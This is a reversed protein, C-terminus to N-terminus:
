NRWHYFTAIWGKEDSVALVILADDNYSYSVYQVKGYGPDEKVETERLLLGQSTYEQVQWRLISTGSPLTAVIIIYTNQKTVDVRKVWSTINKQFEGLKKWHEPTNQKRVNEFDFSKISDIYRSNNTINKLDFATNKTFNYVRPILEYSGIIENNHNIAVHSSLNHTWLQKHWFENPISAIYHEKKGNLDFIGLSPTNLRTEPSSFQIFKPNGIVSFLLQKRYPLYLFSNSEAKCFFKQKNTDNFPNAYNEYRIFYLNKKQLNYTAVAPIYNIRKRLSDYELYHLTSNLLLISDEIFAANSFKNQLNKKQYEIPITEGESNILDKRLGTIYGYTIDNPTALSVATDIYDGNFTFTQLLTFTSDYLLVDTNSNGCVAIYKGSKSFVINQITSLPLSDSEKISKIKIVDLIPQGSSTAYIDEVWLCTFISLLLM